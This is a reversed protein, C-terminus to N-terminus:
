RRRWEEKTPPRHGNRIEYEKWLDMAVMAITALLILGAWGVLVAACIRMM